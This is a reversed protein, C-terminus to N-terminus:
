YAETKKSNLCKTLLDNKLFNDGMAGRKEWKSHAIIPIPLNKFWFTYIEPL